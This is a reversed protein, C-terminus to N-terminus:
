PVDYSECATRRFSARATKRTSGAFHSTKLDIIYVAYRIRFQMVALGCRRSTGAKFRAEFEAPKHPDRQFFAGTLPSRVCKKLCSTVIM